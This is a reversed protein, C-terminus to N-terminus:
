PFIVDGLRRHHLHYCKLRWQLPSDHKWLGQYGLYILLHGVIHGLARSVGFALMALSLWYLFLWLANEMDRAVLLRCKRFAALSLILVLASGVIDIIQAILPMATMLAEGGTRKYFSNIGSYFCFFAPVLLLHDLKTLYFLWLWMGATTQNETNETTFRPPWTPSVALDIFQGIFCDFNWLAFFIGSWVLWRFGRHQVLNEQKLAFIFFVMALAWFLYSFQRIFFAELPDWHPIFAWAPSPLIITLLLFAPILRWRRSYDFNALPYEKEM